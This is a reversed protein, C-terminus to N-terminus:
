QKEYSVGITLEYNLINICYKIFLLSNKWWTINKNYAAQPQCM